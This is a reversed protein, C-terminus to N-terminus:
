INTEIITWGCTLLYAGSNCGGTANAVYHCDLRIVKLILCNTVSTGIDDVVTIMTGQFAKYASLETDPAAIDVITEFTAPDANKGLIIGGIGDVGRM